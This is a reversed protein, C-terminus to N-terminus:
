HSHSNKNSHPRKEEHKLKLLNNRLMQFFLISNLTKIINLFNQTVQELQLLFLEDVLDEVDDMNQKKASGKQKQVSIDEKQFPQASVGVLHVQL